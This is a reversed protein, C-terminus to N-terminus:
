GVGVGAQVAVVVLVADGDEEVGILLRRHVAEPHKIPM